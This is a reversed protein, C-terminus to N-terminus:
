IWTIIGIDIVQNDAPTFSSTPSPSILRAGLTQIFDSLGSFEFLTDPKQVLYIYDRIAQTILTQNAENDIALQITFAQSIIDPIFYEPEVYVPIAKSDIFHQEVDDIDSQVPVGNNSFTLITVGFTGVGNKNDSIFAAKVNSVENALSKYFNDNDIQTTTAFKQKTRTRVSEITEEDIAGNFGLISIAKNDIGVIPSSLFMDINALTNSITGKEVSESNIDVFGSAITGDEITIYELENYILIAGTPVLTTDVGTFRIIGNSITPEKRVINKLPAFYNLVRDKTCTTLFSDNIIRNLYIYLLQFTASLTNSLQEFFSKKLPTIANKFSSIFDNYIRNKLEEINM